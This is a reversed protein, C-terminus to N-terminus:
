AVVEDPNDLNGQVADLIGAQQDVELLDWKGTSHLWKEFQVAKGQDFQWGEYEFPVPGLTPVDDEISFPESTVPPLLDVEFSEPKPEELSVDKMVLQLCLLSQAALNLVEDPDQDTVFWRRISDGMLALMGPLGTYTQAGGSEKLHQATKGAMRVVEGLRM